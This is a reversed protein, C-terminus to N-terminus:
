KVRRYYVNKACVVMQILANYYYKVVEGDDSVKEIRELISCWRLCSYSSEDWIVWLTDNYDKVEDFYADYYYMDETFSVDCATQLNDPYPNLKQEGGTLIGKTEIADEASM